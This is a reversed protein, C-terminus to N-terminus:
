KKLLIDQKTKVEVLIDFIKKHDEENKDFRREITPFHNKEDNLIKEKIIAIETDQRNDKKGNKSKNIDRVIMYIILAVAVTPSLQLLLEFFDM